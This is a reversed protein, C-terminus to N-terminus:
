STMNGTTMNGGGTVNGTMNNGMMGGERTPQADSAQVSPMSFTAAIVAIVSFATVIALMMFIAKTNRNM